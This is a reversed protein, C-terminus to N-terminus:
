ALNLLRRGPRSLVLREAGLPLYQGAGLSDLRETLFAVRRQVLAVPGDEPRKAADPFPNALQRRDVRLEGAVDFGAVTDLRLELVQREEQSAVRVADVCRG